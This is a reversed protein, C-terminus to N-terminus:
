LSRVDGSNRVAVVPVISGGVSQADVVGTVIVMGSTPPNVSGCLVKVGAHGNSALGSGDDLYFYKAQADTTDSYTVQGAIRVLMGLNYLGRGLAVGPTAPNFGSGGLSRQALGLPAIITAGAGLDEVWGANMVRQPGSSDLVGHVNVSHGALASGSYSVKMASSRDAEEIWFVGPLAATVTKGSLSLGANDAYGWADSIRALAATSRFAYPGVTLTSPNPVGDVNAARLHLYYTGASPTLNLSGSTWQSYSVWTPDSASSDWVYRYRGARERGSGFGNMAAFSIGTGVPYWASASGPGRDCSIAADGSSAYVPPLAFTCTVPLATRVSEVQGGTISKHSAAYRTYQTNPALGTETWSTAGPSATTKLVGSADRINFGEEDSSADTWRWTVQTTYLGIPTSSGPANPIRGFTIDDFAGTVNSNSNPRTVAHIADYGVTTTSDKVLAANVMDDIFFSVDNTATPSKAPGVVVRARHWGVSRTVGTNFWGTGDYSDSAGMVRAQYKTEDYAGSTVQSAGLALSQNPTPLSSPVPSVYDATASILTSGFNALAFYDEYTDADSATGRPDYFWWDLFIGGSFASGGNLRYAINTIDSCNRIGETARMLKTGGHVAIGTEASTYVSGNPPAPGFWPNGSNTDGNTAANPGSANNMNTDGGALGEYGEFLLGKAFNATLDYANGPMEFTYSKSRSVVNTGGCGDTTWGTFCYGASPTAAVTVSQGLTFLGAGSVTGGACATVSVPAEKLTFRFGQTNWRSTGSITGSALDFRVTPQTVGANLAIDGINVWQCSSGSQYATTTGSIGTGGTLSVSVTIDSSINTTGYHCVELRYKGGPCGLTPQVQCWHAGSIGLYRSAGAVLNGDFSNCGGASNAWGSDDSYWASNLGPSRSEVYVAEAQVGAIQQIYYDWDWGAGPDTHTGCCCNTIDVHGVIGAPTGVATPTVKVKPIGWRNCIDRTLLASGDYLAQPHSSSAAYGEHEIGISTANFCSAHWATQAERVMQWVSGASDVVYHSSSPGQSGHDCMKFWARCGAATGEVTHVVVTNSTHTTSSFNCSPAADWTALAYDVEDAMLQRGSPALSALDISGIDQPPFSFREGSNNVKDMGTKLTRFVEMAFFRSNEPDLGAYKIVPDLWAQLGQSRDVVFQSAYGSLVAAAAEINAAPDTKLAEQAVGTLESGVALSDGGMSNSRLAMVGYGGEITPASGRNEFGSGYSGLTLLLTLPVDYKAAASEFAPVLPVTWTPVSDAATVGFVQHSDSTDSAPAPAACLCVILALLGIRM